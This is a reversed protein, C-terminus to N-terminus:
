VDVMYVRATMDVCGSISVLASETIGAIKESISLGPDDRWGTNKIITSPARARKSETRSESRPRDSSEMWERMRKTSEQVILFVTIGLNSRKEVPNLLLSRVRDNQEKWARGSSKARTVERDVEREPVLVSISPDLLMKSLTNRQDDELRTNAILARLLPFLSFVYMEAIARGFLYWLGTGGVLGALKVNKTDAKLARQVRQGYPTPIDFDIWEGALLARILWFPLSVENMAKIDKEHGGDLFGM